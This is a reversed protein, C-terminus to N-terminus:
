AVNKYNFYNTKEKDRIRKYNAYGFNIIKNSRETEIDTILKGISNYNYFVKLKGDTFESRKGKYNKIVNFKYNTKHNVHNSIRIGNCAGNDLKLYISKTNRSNQIEVMFGRRNLINKIRNALRKEKNIMLM